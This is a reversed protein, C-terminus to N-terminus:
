VIRKTPLTLHTYSVPDHWVEIETVVIPYEQALEALWEREAECKPCEAGYYLTVEVTEDGDVAAQLGPPAVAAVAPVAAASAAPLVTAALAGLLALIWILTAQRSTVRASDTM